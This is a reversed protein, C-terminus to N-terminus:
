LGLVFVIEKIIKISTFTSIYYKPNILNFIYSFNIKGEKFENIHSSSFKLIVNTAQM